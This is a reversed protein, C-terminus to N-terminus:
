PSCKKQDDNSLMCAIYDHISRMNGSEPILVYKGAYEYRNPITFLKEPLSFQQKKLKSALLLKKAIYVGEDNKIDREVVIDLETYLSMIKEQNLTKVTGIIKSVLADVIKQQRANRAFDNGEEGIANRSRVYNLATEGDMHQLGKKFSVTKYRCAYEPDGDCPDNEKGEIPFKNDTFEREVNVDIGGIDDILKKFRDFNIVVAYHIPMGVIAGVESKALIMGGGRKKAEGYAYASNIKDQLTTSWIDRPISIFSITKSKINYSIVTLSDTLNPGEHKTGAKGLLLINVHNNTKDFRDNFLVFSFPSVGTIQRILNYYPKIIILSTFLLASLAIAATFKKSKHKTM